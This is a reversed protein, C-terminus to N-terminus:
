SENLLKRAAAWSECQRCVSGNHDWKGPVNHRHGPSANPIFGARDEEDFDELEAADQHHVLQYLINRLQATENRYRMVRDTLHAKSDRLHKNEQQLEAKTAM